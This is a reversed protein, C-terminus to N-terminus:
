MIQNIAVQEQSPQPPYFPVPQFNYGTQPPTSFTAPVRPAFSRPSQQTVTPPNFNYAASEGLGKNTSQM